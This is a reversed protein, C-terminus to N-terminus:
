TNRVPAKTVKARTDIAFAMRIQRVANRHAILPARNENIRRAGAKGRAPFTAANATPHPHHPLHQSESFPQAAEEDGAADEVGGGDTPEASVKGALPFAPARKATGGTRSIL